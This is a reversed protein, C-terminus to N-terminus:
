AAQDLLAVTERCVGAAPEPLREGLTRLTPLDEPRVADVLAELVCPETLAISVCPWVDIGCAGLGDAAPGDGELRGRALDLVRRAVAAGHDEESSSDVPGLVLQWLPSSADGLLEFPGSSSPVEDDRDRAERLAELWGAPDSSVQEAVQESVALPTSEFVVGGAVPVLRGIVHSGPELLLASGLNPVSHLEDTKVDCWTVERLDSGVLRHASMPSRTWEQISDAGAVLDASAGDRLFHALGGLDYLFLERFVWDRDMVRTKVEHEHLGALEPQGRTLEVALELAHLQATRTTPSLQQMAQNLIWRSTVWRPLLPGLMVVQVLHRVRWPRWFLRGDPGYPAEEMAVLAGAADGRAEAADAQAVAHLYPAALAWQQRMSEANPSKQSRRQRSSKQQKRGRSKPM